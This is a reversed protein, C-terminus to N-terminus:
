KLIGLKGMFKAVESTVRELSMDITQDIMTFGILQASVKIEPMGNNNTDDVVRICFKGIEM